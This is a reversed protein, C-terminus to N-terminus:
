RCLSSLDPLHDYLVKFPTKGDLACMATRNKLWNAHRLAEGWVSKPLGCTHTLAQVQELLTQNLCEAIGNLQPTDHPTLCHATGAAALHMNFAKSLYEGGCDSRLVKIAKCHLQTTAWAEFTKYADFAKDKTWLLFIVTFHMCDDTFSVFYHRGQHTAISSPGWVDTHVEDGFNQAPISTCPKSMPLCTACAFTCANCDVEKLDPNLEIGQIARSMVLKCASAVSIHGLHRHLEMASMEVVDTSKFNHMTKYLCHLTCAVWGVRDGCPSVLELGGGGIHAHYGEMDLRSISVLTYNVMPVHLAKHLVLKSKTGNNPVQIVLNGEGLAPFHQQNATNVYIPPSLTTYTSFDAMYPSIHRTTGSDYLETCPGTDEELTMIIAAAMEEEFVLEGEKDLWDEPGSWDFFEEACVSKPRAEENLMSTEGMLLDLVAHEVHAHNVEEIAMFFGDGKIDDTVVVNVSGVPKNETKSTTASYVLALQTTSGEEKKLACCERAWHGAKGCNHCNGQRHKKRRNHNGSTTTTTNTVALAKDTQDGKKGKGQGQQHHTRHSKLRDAEKCLCQILFMINLTNGSVRVSMQTLVAFKALKDPLSQLVTQEFNDNGITVGTAKIQNQKTWLSTLFTRIDGGRPCCMSFFEQKLNNRAFKSKATFELEIAEWWEKATKHVFVEMATDEPLWQTL